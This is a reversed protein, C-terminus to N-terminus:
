FPLDDSSIESENGFKTVFCENNIQDVITKTFSSSYDSVENLFKSLIEFLSLIIRTDIKLKSLFDERSISTRFVEYPDIDKSLINEDIIQELNKAFSYLSKIEIKSYIDFSRVMNWSEYPNPDNVYVIDNLIQHIENRYSSMKNYKMILDESNFTIIETNERDVIAEVPLNTSMNALYEDFQMTGEFLRFNIKKYSEFEKNLVTSNTIFSNDKSILVVEDYTSFNHNLISLWIMTDKLGKDSNDKTFPAIKKISRKYLEDISITNKYIIRNSFIESIFNKISDDVETRITFKEYDLDIDLIEFLFLNRKIGTDIKSLYFEVLEDVVIESVFVEGLESYKTVIEKLKVPTTLQRLINTDFTIARKM